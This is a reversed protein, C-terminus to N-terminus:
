PSKEGSKMAKWNGGTPIDDAQRRLVAARNSLAVIIPTSPHAARNGRTPRCLYSPGYKLLYVATEIAELDTEAYIMSLPMCGSHTTLDRNRKESSRRRDLNFAAFCWERVNSWEVRTGPTRYIIRKM